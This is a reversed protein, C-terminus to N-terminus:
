CVYLCVLNLHDSKRGYCVDFIDFHKPAIATTAILSLWFELDPHPSSVSLCICVCVSLFIWVYLCVYVSLCIYVSMCVCVSLCICVYLCACLHALRKCLSLFTCFLGDIMSRVHDKSLKLSGSTVYHRM